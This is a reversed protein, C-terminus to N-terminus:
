GLWSPLQAPQRITGSHGGSPLSGSKGPQARGAYAQGWASLGQGAADVWPNPAIGALKLKMLYDQAASTGSLLGLDSGAAAMRQGEKVRQYTPADIRALQGALRVNEAGAATRADEAGASFRDSVAGGPTELGEGGQTLQARQLSAVFDQTASAREADPNSAGLEQIQQNVREGAQRQIAAQNIIGQAATRDQKRMASQQSAVSAGTGAASALLMATEVGTCM